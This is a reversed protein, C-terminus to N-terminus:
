QLFKRVASMSGVCGFGVGICLIICAIAACMHWSQGFFATHSFALRVVALAAIGIMAGIFGQLMGELVFPTKIYADTAGVFRMNRVLDRRAYITLKITNAIMFHMALMLFLVAAATARAFWVRVKGLIAMWQRSFSVGEVGDLGSLEQKLRELTDPSQCAAALTIELSAPFPNADVADLMERGYMMEFRSWASDKGIMRASVVQPLQGINEVLGACAASDGSVADAIYVVLAPRGAAAALWQRLALYGAAALGLVFLTVAVTVISVLTMLKAQVFGRFAEKVFYFLLGM